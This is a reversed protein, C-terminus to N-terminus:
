SRAYDAISEKGDWLPYPKSPADAASVAFATAMPHGLRLVDRQIGRLM